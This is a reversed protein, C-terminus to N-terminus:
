MVKKYIMEILRSTDVSCMNKNVIKLLINKPFNQMCM